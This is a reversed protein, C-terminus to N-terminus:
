LIITGQPYESVKSNKDHGKEKETFIAEGAVVQFMQEYESHAEDETFYLASHTVVCYTKEWRSRIGGTKLRHVYGKIVEQTPLSKIPKKVELAKSERHQKKSAESPKEPTPEPEIVQIAPVTDASTSETPDTSHTPTHYTLPSLHPTIFHQLNDKTIILDVIKDVASVIRADGLIPKNVTLKCLLGNFRIM